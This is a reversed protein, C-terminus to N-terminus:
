VSDGLRIFQMQTREYDSFSGYIQIGDHGNGNGYGFRVKVNSTDDVNVFASFSTTNTRNEVYDYMQHVRAAQTYSSNNTTVLIEFTGTDQSGSVTFEASLSFTVLYYGTASFSFTGSSQSVITGVNSYSSQDNAALNSQIYGSGSTALDSGSIVFSQVNTIGGFGSATGSNSITAGSPITITDGSAGITITNSNENIINNGDTDQITDAKLISSM